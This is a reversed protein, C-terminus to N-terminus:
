SLKIVITEIVNAIDEANDIATELDDLIEKTKIIRIPDPQTEFLIGIADELITDGENELSNIRVLAERIRSMNNLTEMYRIAIDIEKVQKCIIESLREMAPSYRDVKYLEIRTAASNISDAVDDLATALEHIDSRDFPTIFDTSLKNHIEHTIDDGKNELEKIRSLFKDQEAHTTSLM